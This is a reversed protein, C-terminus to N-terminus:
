TKFKLKYKSLRKSPSHKDLIRNMSGFFNQFTTNTDNNQLKLIYPWDIAFYDLIFEERNFKYWDRKFINPKKNPANSFIHPAILFQPLRIHNINRQRLNNGSLFFIILLLSQIPSLELQISLTLYSWILHCLILSNMLQKKINM